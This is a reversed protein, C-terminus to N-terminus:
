SMYIGWAKQGSLCENMQKLSAYKNHNKQFQCGSLNESTVM